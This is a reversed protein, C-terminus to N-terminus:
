KIVTFRKTTTNKGSQLTYFYMGSNLNSTNVLVQGNTISNFSMIEQGVVNTIKVSAHSDKTNVPIILDSSSNVPNPYANGLANAEANNEQVSVMGYNSVGTIKYDIAHHIYTYTNTAGGMYAFSPIYSGNWGGANNYRVDQPLIYSVNWDGKTYTPFNGPNEDLSLFRLSNNATMSDVNPVWTYGPKFSISTYFHQGAAITLNTKVGIYNDGFATTDDAVAATLPVKFTSHPNVGFSNTSQTYALDVFKVTDTGLNTALAGPGFYSYAGPFSAVAVEVILTDVATPTKHGRIYYGDFYISDLTYSSTKNLQLEGPYYTVDNFPAATPDFVDALKHIWTGGLGTSYNVQMTSDPFIFNANYQGAGQLLQDMAQGYNYIRSTGKSPNNSQITKHKIIKKQDIVKGAPFTLSNQGIATGIFLISLALFYIKKM